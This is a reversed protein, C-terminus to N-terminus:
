ARVGSASPPSIHAKRQPYRKRSGSATISRRGTSMSPARGMAEFAGEMGLTGIYIHALILAVFLVGVVGHFIEALEMDGVTLGYYFPFILLFGSIIMAAGGLVIFWISSKQGGNFKQAPPEQARGFMGGGSKFWDVDAATDPLKRRDM